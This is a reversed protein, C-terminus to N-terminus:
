AREAIRGFMIVLSIVVIGVLIKTGMDVGSSYGYEFIVISLSDM